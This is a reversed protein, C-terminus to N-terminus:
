QQCKRGEGSIELNTSDPSLVQEPVTDQSDQCLNTMRGFGSLFVSSMLLAHTAKHGKTTVLSQSLLMDSFINGGETALSLM